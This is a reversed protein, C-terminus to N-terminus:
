EEVIGVYTVKVVGNKCFSGKFFLLSLRVADSSLFSPLTVSAVVFNIKSKTFYIKQICVKLTLNLYTDRFDELLIDKFDESEATLRKFVDPSEPKGLCLFKHLPLPLTASGPHNDRIRIKDMKSGPDRIWPLFNEPDADAFFKLIKVWYIQLKVLFITELSETIHDPVNMGSGSEV